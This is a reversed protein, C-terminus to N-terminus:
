SPSSPLTQLVQLEYNATARLTDHRSYERTDIAESIKKEGEQLLFLEFRDPVNVEAAIYTNRERLRSHVAENPDFAHNVNVNQPLPKNAGGDGERAFDIRIQRGEIEAGNMPQVAMIAEEMTAFAVYCFGRPTKEEPDIPIKVSLVAGYPAFAAKIVDVTTDFSIGGVFLTNSPENTPDKIPRAERPPRERAEAYDLRIADGACEKGNLTEVATIAEKVSSFAVYAFGKNVESEDKPIYVDTLEGCGAFFERLMAENCEESVGGVFLKPAPPNNAERPAREKVQAFDIRITERALETGSLADKAATAEDISSFSVFAIGKNQDNEDKPIFAYTVEGYVSFAERLDDDTCEASIGGIFLKLSPRGNSERPPRGRVQAFDIRVVEGSIETGSLAHKATTAEDISSFSVFGIGKNAGDEDKPIFADIVEGHVSFAERLDNETCEASVGFLVLKLSPESNSERAPRERVQAFDIRITEGAIKTDHLADKAATAEDVSTFFVFGIGKNAGDHDKPIVADTVEGHAGFAERLDDDTCEASVGGIFLKLSPQNSGGGGRPAREKVQAFDIRINQGAVETDHLADKAAIAEEVTSFSLFAISKNTGNDDKPIHADTVEGHAGFADRLHEETCEESVNGIFLKLSPASNSGRPPRARVESFDIRINEGAIETGNLAEKAAIAEGVSTFSCFAIGRKMDNEQPMFLDTIEGHASFADRLHDETCEESINGIFLKLSPEKSGGGGGEGGGPRVKVEAFDLRINNGAIKTGELADKAAIAEEVSSFSLYAIGKNMGNDQPIYCDTIEGHVGFEERLQEETCNDSINRIFLKLSPEKSSSGKSAREKNEAFDIRINHGAVEVGDLAEMAATAEDVSSFSLFAIGKNSGNEDQPLFCDTIEGYAGFAELLHDESCELSINGLFLKQSPPKSSGSRAGGGREKVEAYDLRISEGALEAGNLTNMAAIAEDVTSYSVFAFGRGAGTDADKAVYVDTLEGCPQFLERLDDETADKSVSGVFLKLSPARDSAVPARAPRAKVEAYDIHVSKGALDMGNLTGHADMAEEITSFSVYAHGRNLGTIEDKPVHVDTITGCVQFMERLMDEDADDSFNGVFLKVSPPNSGGGGGGAGGTRPAAYDLRINRGAIYAGNMKEMAGRAEDVSEFAVYAFGKM